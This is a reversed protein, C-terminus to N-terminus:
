QQQPLPSEPNQRHQQPSPATHWEWPPTPAPHWEQQPSPAPHWGRPPPPPPAPHRGRPPPPAPDQKQQTPHASEKINAFSAADAESAGRVGPLPQEIDSVSEAHSSPSCGPKPSKFYKGRPHCRKSKHYRLHSTRAFAQGCAQHDCIFPLEGTHQRLHMNLSKNCTYTKGCGEWLCRCKAPDQQKRRKYSRGKLHQDWIHFRLKRGTTYLQDCVSGAGNPVRWKCVQITSAPQPVLRDQNQSDDAEEPMVADATANTAM